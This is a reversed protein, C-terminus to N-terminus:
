KIKLSKFSSAFYKVAKSIAERSRPRPKLKLLICIYIERSETSAGSTFIQARHLGKADKADQPRKLGDFPNGLQLGDEVTDDVGQLVDEVDQDDVQEEHEDKSHYSNM